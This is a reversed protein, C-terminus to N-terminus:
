QKSFQIMAKINRGGALTRLEEDTTFLGVNNWIVEDEAGMLANVEFEM